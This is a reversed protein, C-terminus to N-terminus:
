EKILQVVIGRICNTLSIKHTKNNAYKITVFNGKFDVITAQGYTKHKIITGIKFQERKYKSIIPTNDTMYKIVEEKLIEKKEETVKHENRFKLIEKSQNKKAEIFRETEIDYEKFYDCKIKGNPMILIDEINYIKIFLKESDNNEIYEDHYRINKVLCIKLNNIDFYVALKNNENLMIQEFYSLRIQKDNDIIKNIDGNIIWLDNINNDKYFNHRTEWESKDLETRQFEVALREGSDFELYLDCRRKNSFCKSIDISASPYKDKFYHYLKVKGRKHEESEKSTIDNYFCNSNIKHSFHPIKKKPDKVRLVMENKCEPCLLLGKKGAEKWETYIDYNLADNINTVDYACIINGKYLCIDM